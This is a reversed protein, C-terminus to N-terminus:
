TRVDPRAADRVPFPVSASFKVGLRRGVEINSGVRASRGTERELLSLFEDVASQPIPNGRAFVRVVVSDPADQVVQCGPLGVVSHMLTLMRKPSIQRGSPFRMYHAARGEVSELLPLTIGCACLGEPAMYGVDGTRYRVLPMAKSVLGTAVIEGAEGPRVPDGGEDLIEVIVNDEIVHMGKQEVCEFSILGLENCGYAQYVSRQFVSEIYARNPEDVPEGATLFRAPRIRGGVEENGAAYDALMRLYSMAGEILDPKYELVAPVVEGIDESVYATRVFHNFLRSVFPGVITSGPGGVLQNRVPHPAAGGGAAGQGGAPPGEGIRAASNQARAFAIQLDKAFLGETGRAWHRYRVRTPGRIKYDRAVSRDLYVPMPRGTTGSTALRVCDEQPSTLREEVPHALLDDKSCLPLRRLDEPGRIDGPTVKAADFWDRWFRSRGYACSVMARLKGEQVRRIGERSLYDNRRAGLHSGLPRKAM